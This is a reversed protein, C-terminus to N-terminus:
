NKFRGTELHLPLIGLRLQALLSRRRRLMCYKIYSGTEITEKFKVNTRLKPKTPLWNKWDANRLNVCICKAADINCIINNDYIQNLSASYLIDKLELSWNKCVQYDLNFVRKTIRSEEINIFKNWLRIMNIHHRTQCSMCGMDGELALLPIYGHFYRIARFQIKDGDGYHKNGWGFDIIPVVSTHYMKDFTNFGVNKLWKFKSIVAGLTRGAAGSPVSSTVSFHLHENLITSLYKYRDVINLVTNDFMFEFITKSRIIKRFHVVNTKETDVKM